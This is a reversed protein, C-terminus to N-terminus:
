RCCSQTDGTQFVRDNVEGAVIDLCSRAIILFFPFPIDTQVVDKLGSREFTNAEAPTIAFGIAFGSPILILVPHKYAVANRKELGM